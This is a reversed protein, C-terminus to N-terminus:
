EYHSYMSLIKVVKEEKIVDYVIRHQINIRRLYMGKLDGVLKEYPPPEQFPNERIIKLLEKAKEKLHLGARELNKADKEAKKTYVLRFGM